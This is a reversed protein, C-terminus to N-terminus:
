QLCKAIGEIEKALARMWGAMEGAAAKRERKHERLKRKAGRIKFGDQYVLQRIQRIKALDRAAYIRRGKQDRMPKLSSFQREWYRLIHCPVETLEGAQAITYFKDDTGSM